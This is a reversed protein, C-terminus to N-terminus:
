RAAIGKERDRKEREDKLSGINILIWVETIMM